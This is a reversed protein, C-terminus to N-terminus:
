ARTEGINAGTCGSAYPMAGLGGLGHGIDPAAAEDLAEAVHARHGAKLSTSAAHSASM